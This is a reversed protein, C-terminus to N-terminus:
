ANSNNYNQAERISIEKLIGGCNDCTSIKSIPSVTDCTYWIEGCNKCIFRKM